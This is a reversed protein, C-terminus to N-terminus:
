AQIGYRLRVEGVQLDDGETLKYTKEPEVLTGNLLTPNTTRAQPRLTWGDAFVLRAHTRSVTQGRPEDALDLFREAGGVSRAGSSRRGITVEPPILVYRKGSESELCAPSQASPRFKRPEFQLEAGEWVGAESLTEEPRLVRGLSVIRIEYGSEVDTEASDWRLAEAVFGALKDAAVDVSLELDIVPQGGPPHVEVIV